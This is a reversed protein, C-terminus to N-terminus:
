LEKTNGYKNLDNSILPQESFTKTLKPFENRLIDNLAQIYGSYFHCAGCTKPFSCSKTKRHYKKRTEVENILDKLYM